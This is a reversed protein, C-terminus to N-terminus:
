FVGGAWILLGTMLSVFVQIGLFGGLMVRAQPNRWVYRLMSVLVAVEKVVAHEFPIVTQNLGFIEPQVM